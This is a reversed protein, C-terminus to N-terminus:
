GNLERVEALVVADAQGAWTATLAIAAQHGPAPRRAVRLEFRDNAAVSWSGDDHPTGFGDLAVREDSWGGGSLRVPSPVLMWRGDREVMSVAQGSGTMAAAALMRACVPDAVGDYVWREGLV